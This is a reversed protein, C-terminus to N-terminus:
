DAVKLLKSVKRSITLVLHITLASLILFSGRVRVMRASWSKGRLLAEFYEHQIDSLIPKIVKELTGSSSFRLSLVYYNLSPVGQLIKNRRRRRASWSAFSSLPEFYLRFAIRCEHAVFRGIELMTVM